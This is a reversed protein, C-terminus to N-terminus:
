GALSICLITVEKLLQFEDASQPFKTLFNFLLYNRLDITRYYDSTNPLTFLLCYDIDLPQDLRIVFHYISQLMM